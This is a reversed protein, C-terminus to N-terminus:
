VDPSDCSSRRRPVVKYLVGDERRKFTQVTVESGLNHPDAPQTSAPEFWALYVPGTCAQDSIQDLTAPLISVSPYLPGPPPVIPEHGTAQYLTWPHNTIVLTHADLQEVAQAVTAPRATATGYGRAVKGDNWTNAAFGVGAITLLGATAAIATRRATRLWPKPAADHVTSRATDVLQAGLVVLPIYLPMVTRNDISAGSFKGAAILFVTYVATFTLLPGASRSGIHRRAFRETRLLVWLGFTAMTAVPIALAVSVVGPAPPIWFSAVTTLYQWVVSGLSANLAVRPGLVYPAGSTANRAVWLVPLPLAATVFLAVRIARRRVAVGRGAVVCVVIGTILLALGVYRVLMAIGAIVGVGATIADRHAVNAVIDELMVIFALLLVCFLPESWAAATVNLVVPSVAVLTTAGVLALRSTTHRQVLIWTLVVICAFAIANLLRASTAFSLGFGHGAALLAPFGPPFTTNPAGTFDLYGHGASLNHAASLYTVSDPSLAPGHRTAVLTAAAATAALTGVIAFSARQGVNAPPDLGHQRRTRGQRNLGSPDTADSCPRPRVLASHDGADHRDVTGRARNTDRSQWDV